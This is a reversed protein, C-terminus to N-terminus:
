SKCTKQLSSESRNSLLNNRQKCAFEFRMQYTEHPQLQSWFKEVPIRKCIGRQSETEKAFFHKFEANNYISLKAIDKNLSRIENYIFKKGETPLSNWFAKGSLHSKCHEDNLSVMRVKHLLDRFSESLGDYSSIFDLLPLLDAHPKEFTHTKLGYEQAVTTTHPNGIVLAHPNKVENLSTIKSWQPISLGRLNATKLFNNYAASSSSDSVYVYIKYNRENILSQLRNFISYQKTILTEKQLADVDLVLTAPM